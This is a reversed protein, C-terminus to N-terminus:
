VTSQTCAVVLAIISVVVAVFEIWHELVYRIISARTFEKYHRGEHSLRVGISDEFRDRIIEVYGLKQLYRITAYADSETGLEKPFKNGYLFSADTQASLFEIMRKSTKDLM